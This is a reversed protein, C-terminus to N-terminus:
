RSIGQDPAQGRGQSMAAQRSLAEAYSPKVVVPADMAKEGANASRLEELGLRAMNALANEGLKAMAFSRETPHSVSRSVCSEGVRVAVTCSACRCRRGNPMACPANRAALTACETALVILLSVIEAMVFKALPKSITSLWVAAFFCIFVEALRAVFESAMWGFVYPYGQYRSHVSAWATLRRYAVMVMWPLIYWALLPCKAFGAYFVMLVAALPYATFAHSGFRSRLFPTICAVHIGALTFMVNVMDAPRSEKM